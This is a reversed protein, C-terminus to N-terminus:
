LLTIGKNTIKRGQPTLVILRQKLLFPEIIEIIYDKDIGTTATLSQLGIPRDLSALMEMYVRDQQTLGGEEVLFIETLVKEANELTPKIKHVEMYRMLRIALNIVVRPTGRSRSVLPELPIKKGNGLQKLHLDAIQSLEESSYDDFELLICRSLFPLDITGPRTTAGIVCMSHTLLPYLNEWQRILHIEDVIVTDLQVMNPDIRYIRPDRGTAYYAYIGGITAAFLLALTTKGCGYPGGLILNPLGYKKRGQLFAILESKIRSQGIFENWKKFNM